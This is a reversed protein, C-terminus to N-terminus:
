DKTIENSEEPIFVLYGKKFDTLSLAKNASVGVKTKMCEETNSYIAEKKLGELMANAGAEYIGVLYEPMLEDVWPMGDGLNDPAEWGKPRYM